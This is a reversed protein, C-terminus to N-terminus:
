SSAFVPLCVFLSLSLYSITCPHAFRFALFAPCASKTITQKLLFLADQKRNVIVYFTNEFTNKTEHVTPQIDSAYQIAHLVAFVECTEFDVDSQNSEAPNLM